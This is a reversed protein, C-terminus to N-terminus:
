GKIQWSDMKKAHMREVLTAQTVILLLTRDASWGVAMDQIHFSVELCICIVM